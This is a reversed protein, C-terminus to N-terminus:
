SQGLFTNLIKSVAQVLSTKVPLHWKTDLLTLTVSAYEGAVYATTGGVQKTLQMPQGNGPCVSLCQAAMQFKGLHRGAAM